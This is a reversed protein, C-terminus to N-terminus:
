SPQAAPQKPLLFVVIGAIVAIVFTGFSAVAFAHGAAAVRGTEAPRFASFFVAGIVAVGLAGGCQQATSLVGSAVGASEPTVRSLVTNLAPTIVLGGGVSQLVLTPIVLLPTLRPGSVLLLGTALYGSALIVAGIELVRRGYKPITRSAVMSFVFFATAAPAYTLGAGLASMHLGQQLTVSLALYYSYILAYLALVLVIGLSFSRQGFLTLPVLPDGGRRERGREIATFLGFAVASGAFCLWVWGPWGAQQGQILPLVLLFLAASLVLVGPLDLKRTAAAGTRPVHRLALLFMALGIPVNVWFVLRWGSGFLDAGILLGGIVQGGITAMGMVLGVVGYVSHRRAAPVLVTVYAFVQPVMLAAGFGQLVRAAILSGASPSLACAISSLTFLAVGLLFIRKRGYLDALRTATIIFVAYSLQYGALVWQIDSDSAHLDAVISPDAVVVIFSDLVAIFLAALVVAMTMWPIADAKAAAVPRGATQQSRAM